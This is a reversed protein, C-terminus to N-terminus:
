EEKEFGESANAILATGIEMQLHKPLRFLKAMLQSYTFEVKTDLIPEEEISTDIKEVTESAEIFDSFDPKETWNEIMGDHKIRLRIYDGCDDVEPILGNPVYDAIKCIVKKDKDLLFYTGSDCVKAQLYLDGYEPKWNLLKHTKLDIIGSWMGKSVLPCKNEYLEGLWDDIYSCMEEKYPFYIMLYNAVENLDQEKIGILIQKAM